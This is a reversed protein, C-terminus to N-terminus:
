PAPADPTANDLLKQISEALAKASEETLGTRSFSMEDNDIFAEWGRKGCDTVWWDRWTFSTPASPEIVKDWTEEDTTEESSM